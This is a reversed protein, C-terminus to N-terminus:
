KKTACYFSAYMNVRDIPIKGGIPRKHICEVKFGERRYLELYWPEQGASRFFVRGNPKLANRLTRITQTLECPKSGRAPPSDVTNPFWDQLDMIIAITLSDKGLRNMVNMISDTHLRFCDLAAGDNQKLKEFGERTLYLPCSDKTYKAELCLQYFYNDKAVHSNLGIPDLADIAFQSTTTEKLFVRAQNIPVGLSNWQFIPNALFVKRIFASLIIPRIRSTWIRRQEELTPAACMKHVSGYMGTIRLAWYALRLAHGSYGRMYFASDFMHDNKRWYQYAHSTLFPSLKSDLLERFNPHRGEGFLLWFDDYELAYICALKLELVHGQCPNFDVTHIRRPQAEIAYHLANCGGSTICLVSDDKNIKLHEMDVRPDEWAFAYTFTRFEHHVPDDIYPVRWHRYGYHFASLQLEPAIDIRISDSKDSNDSSRSYARNVRQKPKSASSRSRSRSLAASVGLALDPIENTSAQRSLTPMLLPSPSASITNGADIEYAQNASSTDVRRSTHLSVYYPIRILGPLVFGNRANFSKITAFRHELYQRRSPHLDVHDLEFWHLWFWRTLWSCQRSTVDGIVGAVSTTERASVYFDCVSFLGSPHLFREVRDLLTLHDPMMSLSYSMTVFDLGGEEGLGEETWEPLVFHTADQLLCQVNKWGRAAFRKRSVELLPGCLDLVYVADFEKIPFYNWGTGGGIDLWILRKNPNKRRQERLHAASLKLMTTRGRLLKSRTKDYIKIHFRAAQGQYFRNLRGEQSANKGLPQFFCNWAFTWATVLERAFSSLAIVAIGAGLLWASMGAHQTYTTLQAQLPRFYLGLGGAAGLLLMRSAM